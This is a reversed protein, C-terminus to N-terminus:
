ACFWAPTPTLGASRTPSPPTVRSISRACFRTAIIMTALESDEAALTFHRGREMLGAHSVAAAGLRGDPRRQRPVMHHPEPHRQYLRLGFRAASRASWRPARMRSRASARPEGQALGTVRYAERTAHAAGAGFVAPLLLLALRSYTMPRDPAPPRGDDRDPRWRRAFCPGPSTPPAEGMLFTALAAVDKLSRRLTRRFISRWARAIPRTPPCCRRTTFGPAIVNVTVGRKATEIALTRCYAILAGKTAAYAANGTNAQLAAVSGIAIIRWLPRPDHRAVLSKAIRTLSFFNVQMAAEAKDQDFIASFGTPRSGPM